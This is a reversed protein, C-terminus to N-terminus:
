RAQRRGNLADYLAHLDWRLRRDPGASPLAGSGNEFVQVTRLFSEPTRGLWRLIFLAHQCSCDRRKAIGTLTSPSIPHDQRERNLDASQNWMQEAVERWSLGRAVRQADM